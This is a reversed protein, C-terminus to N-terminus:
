DAALIIIIVVLLIIILTTATITFTRDGGALRDEVDRATRALHDLEEGDVTAVAAEARRVDLGMAEAVREVEPRRLVRRVAQRARQRRRAERAVLEELEPEGIVHRGEDADEQQSAVQGEATAHPLAVDGSTPLSPVALVPLPVVLQIALITALLEHFRDM